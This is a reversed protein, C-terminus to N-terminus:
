CSQHITKEFQETVTDPDGELVKEGNRIWVVRNCFRRIAEMSHSVMVVTKGRSLERQLYDLCKEQFAQDGVALVEDLLLIDADVHIAVSFALRMFMGTSYTRVPQDIFSHLEAFDVIDAFREAIEKRRLGLLLANIFINERGTLEPHFGLGLELLPAIRGSVRIEGKDPFLVGAILGLLTSKGSGNTGILGVCEGRRIELSLGRIAHFEFRKKERLYSPLRLIARKLGPQYPSRLYYRKWVDRLTIVVETGSTCGVAQSFSM